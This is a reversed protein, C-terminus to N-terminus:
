DNVRLEAIDAITGLQITVPNASANAQMPRWAFRWEAEDAHPREKSFLRGLPSPKGYSIAADIGAWNPLIRQVVRHVREGFREADHIVLYADASQKGEFLAGDPKQALSLILYPHDGAAHAPLQPPVLRFEGATLARELKQRDSFYYLKPPRNNDITTM